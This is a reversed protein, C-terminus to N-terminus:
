EQYFTPASQETILHSFAGNGCGVDLWKEDSRPSIWDIFRNGILTGWTGISKRYSSGDSFQM